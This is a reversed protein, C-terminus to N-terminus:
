VHILFIPIKTLIILIFFITIITENIKSQNLIIVENLSSSNNKIEKIIFILFPISGAINIIIIYICSEIKEKRKSLYFVSIIIPIISSEFLVFFSLKDESIFVLNSLVIISTSIYLSKLKTYKSSKNFKNYTVVTLLSVRIFIMPYNLINITFSKSITTENKTRLIITLFILRFPYINILIKNM